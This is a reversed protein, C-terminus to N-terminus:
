GRRPPQPGPGPPEGEGGAREAELRHHMVWEERTIKGDIWTMFRQSAGPMVHVNYLHWVVVIAVAVLAEDSHAIWAMGFALNPLRNGFTLPFWLVLGSFAMVPVGWLVAFYHLKERFHHRGYAPLTARRGIYYMSTEWWDHADQRTPLMTWARRADLRGRALLVLVYLLHALGGLIMVAAAARHVARAVTLGGLARYLAALPEVDPFRLPIGTLALAIFSAVLAGHQIRQALSMRQILPGPNAHAAAAAPIPRARLRRQADFLVGAALVLLIGVGLLVFFAEEAALLPERRVRLALHNAGSMAFNLKAGKHCDQQGCTGPLHAASVTSATDRPALVRHATHCDQCVAARSSGFRSAKYHFSRRYSAVADPNVRDRSMRERDDHCPACQALKEPRALTKTGRAAAHPDGAGHCYDCDPSDTTEGTLGKRHASVRYDAVSRDHRIPRGKADRAHCDADCSVKPRAAKFEHPFARIDGHCQTCALKGHASSRFAPGAVTLHLLARTASDRVVFNPMGHCKLCSDTESAGFKIHRTPLRFEPSRSVLLVARPQLATADGARTAPLASATQRAPAAAASSGPSAAAPAIAICLTAAIAM